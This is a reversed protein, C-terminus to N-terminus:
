GHHGLHTGLSRGTTRTVQAVMDANLTIPNVTIPNFPAPAAAPRTLGSGIATTEVGRSAGKRPVSDRWGTEGAIWVGRVPWDHNPLDGRGTDQRAAPFRPNTTPPFAEVGRHAGGQRQTGYTPACAVVM